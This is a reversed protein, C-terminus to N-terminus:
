ILINERNILARSYATWNSTGYIKPATKKMQFHYQQILNLSYDQAIFSKIEYKM